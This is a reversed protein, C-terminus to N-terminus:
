FNVRGTTATGAANTFQVEFSAIGSANGSVPFVAELLFNGGDTSSAFYAAFGATSDVTMAPVVANGASDYFAYTMRGATRTNDFAAVNLQISGAARQGSASVIGVPAAPIVVSQQAAVGGITATFNLTGATTGTQFNVSALGGFNAQTDGSGFSFGLSNGVVGLQIAPDTAGNPLPQFALALLGSGAAQAAAAFGVAVTGQQNSQPQALTVSLVPTPQPLPLGSGTLAYNRDGITLTGAAAGVVAPQFVIDFGATDGPEFVVGAPTPQQLSFAAGQVAIGPAALVLGTLNAVTFHLRASSGTQVAGFDVPASGLTQAGAATVVQYTLRPLVTVALLVSAGETDLSASYTGPGGAQFVVSFDVSQQPNLGDPVAPAGSLAFGTGNVALLDLPAASGSTNRIRFLATASETPYVQGLNLTAPAPVEVNGNVEYLSFQAFAPAAVGAVLVLMLAPKM